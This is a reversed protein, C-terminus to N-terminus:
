KLWMNGCIHIIRLLDASQVNDRIHRRIDEGNKIGMEEISTCFIDEPNLGIGLQLIYDIFKEMVDKDKSSHSIFIKKAGHGNELGLVCDVIAKM